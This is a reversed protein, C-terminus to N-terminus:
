DEIVVDLQRARLPLEVGSVYLRVPNAVGAECEVMLVGEQGSKLIEPETRLKVGPTSFMADTSISLSKTGVNKCTVSATGGAALKVREAGLRLPGMAKPFHSEGNSIAVRGRVELVATPQSESLSTYVWVKQVVGGMRGRPNFTLKIWGEEGKRRVESSFEAKVCSCGTTVKTIVVPQATAVRWKLTTTWPEDDEALTGFDAVRGQPFEVEGKNATAPNAISDLRSQPVIRIQATAWGVVTLWLAALVTLRVCWERM